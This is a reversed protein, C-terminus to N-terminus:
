IRHQQLGKFPLLRRRQGYGPYQPLKPGSNLIVLRKGDQLGGAGNESKVLVPVYGNLVQLVLWSITFSSLTIDPM